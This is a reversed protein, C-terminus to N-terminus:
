VAVAELAAHDAARLMDLFRGRGRRAVRFWETGFLHHFAGPPLGMFASAELLQSSHAAVATRKHELEESVDVAVLAAEDEVGLQEALLTPWV